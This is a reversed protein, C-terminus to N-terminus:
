TQFNTVRDDKHGFLKYYEPLIVGEKTKTAYWYINMEAIMVNMRFRPIM